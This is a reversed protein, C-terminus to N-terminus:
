VMINKKKDESIIKKGLEELSKKLLSRNKGWYMFPIKDKFELEESKLEKWSPDGSGSFMIFAKPYKVRDLSKVCTKFENKKTGDWFMSFESMQISMFVDQMSNRINKHLNTESHTLVLISVGSHRCTNVFNALFGTHTTFDDFILLFKGLKNKQGALNDNGINRNLDGLPDLLKEIMEKMYEQDSPKKVEIINEPPVISSYDNNVGIVSGVFIFVSDYDDSLESVIYKTFSTKGGATPAILAALFFERGKLKDASWLDINASAM